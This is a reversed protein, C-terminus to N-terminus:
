PAAPVATGGTVAAEWEPWRRDWTHARAWALRAQALSAVEHDVSRVADVWETVTTAVATGPPLSGGSVSVGEAVVAARGRAAVDFLKMSSQGVSLGPRNPVVVVDADDIASSVRGRPIPGHWHIRDPMSDLLHNFEPAPADGYGAYHCPGYIDFTWEPLAALVTAMVEADFRESLTGVYAMRRKRPPPSAVPAIESADAGNPIVAVERGAFLEALESAAVVIADAEDAIRHFLERFRPHRAEPYLHLWNDACDFTARRTGAVAPWHWPLNVVAPADAPVRRRLVHRLLGADVQEALAGRHGPVPTARHIVRLGTLPSVATTGSMGRIFAGAGDTRVSRIDVPSEVFEVQYGHALAMRAWAHERRM